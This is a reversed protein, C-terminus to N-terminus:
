TAAGVTNASTVRRLHRLRYCCVAVVGQLLFPTMGLALVVVSTVTPDYLVAGDTAYDLAPTTLEGRMMAILRPFGLMQWTLVFGSLAAAAYWVTSTPRRLKWALIGAGIAAFALYASTLWDAGPPFPLGLWFLLCVGAYLVEATRAIRLASTENAVNGRAGQIDVWRWHKSAVM